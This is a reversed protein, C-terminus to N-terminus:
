PAGEEIDISRKELRYRVLTCSVAGQEKEARDGAIYSGAAGSGRAGNGRM